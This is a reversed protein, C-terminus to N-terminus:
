KKCHVDAGLDSQSESGSSQTVSGADGSEEVGVDLALSVTSGASKCAQQNASAQNLAAILSTSGAAGIRARLEASVPDDPAMCEDKDEPVNCDAM